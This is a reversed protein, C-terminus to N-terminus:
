VDNELERLQDWNALTSNYTIAAVVAITAVTVVWGTFGHSLQVNKWDIVAAAIVSLIFLTLVKYQNAFTGPVIRLKLIQEVVVVALSALLTVHTFFDM